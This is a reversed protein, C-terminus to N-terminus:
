ATARKGAGRRYLWNAALAEVLILALAAALLWFWLRQQREYAAAQRDTLVPAAGAPEAVARIDELYRGVDLPQPSAEAPDVNAALVVDVGAPTARHIQYFGAAGIELLPASRPLRLERSDPTEVILAADSGAAIVADAGASARAYRLADVVDGVTYAHPLREWAALYRVLEHVLPVFAPQLALDNWYTDLTTGLVLARGQGTRRELLAVDGGAYRAVVRDGDAAALRRYSFVRAGALDRGGAGPISALPHTRDITALRHAFGADADVRAEPRGPLYWGAGRPWDGRQREGLAVLLGGGATVFEALADGLAGGPLPADNVFVVAARTLEAADLENWSVRRTRILPDGALALARELYISQHTRADADEVILVPLQGRSSFVFFADNDAALADTDLSVRGRLLGAGLSLDDFRESRRAGAELELERTAVARGDISLSLRQRLPTSAHSVVDVELAFKDAAARSAPGVTVGALTANGSGDGAVALPEIDIGAAIRPPASEAANFDSLLLIRRRAANSGDLLRSAQELAPKLRTTGLGATARALLERLQAHDASLDSLLETEHDFAILGFRAGPEAADVLELARRRAEDFRGGLRMSYSRDLLIVSDSGAAVPADVDGPEDFFPRAFALVLLLLLLCRLLLLLWHRIEVRRRERLEIRRLFMLSPFGIGGLDQKQVLHILVPLALLAIGALYLPNIWELGM